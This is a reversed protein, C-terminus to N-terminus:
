DTFFELEGKEYSDLIQYVKEPDDEHKKVELFLM